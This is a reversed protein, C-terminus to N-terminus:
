LAVSRINGPSYSSSSALDNELFTSSFTADSPFLSSSWHPKSRARASDVMPREVPGSPVYTTSQLSHYSHKTPLFFRMGYTRLSPMELFTAKQIRVHCIPRHRILHGHYFWIQHGQHDQSLFLLFVDGVAPFKTRGAEHRKFDLKGFELILWEELYQFISAMSAEEKQSQVSSPIEFLLKESQEAEIIFTYYDIIEENDKRTLGLVTRVDQSSLNISNALRNMPGLITPQRATQCCKKNMKKKQYPLFLITTNM